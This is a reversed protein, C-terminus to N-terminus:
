KMQHVWTPKLMTGHAKHIFITLIQVPIEPFYAKVVASRIAERVSRSNEMQLNSYQNANRLRIRLDQKRHINDPCHWHNRLSLTTLHCLNGMHIKQYFGTCYLRHTYNHLSMPFELYKAPVHSVATLPTLAEPIFIHMIHFFM